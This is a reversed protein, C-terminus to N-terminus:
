NFLILYHSVTLKVKNKEKGFRLDILVAQVSAPSPPKPDTSPTTASINDAAPPPPKSEARRHDFRQRLIVISGSSGRTIQPREITTNPHLFPILAASRLITQQPRLSISSWLHQWPRTAKKHHIHDNLTSIDSSIFTAIM